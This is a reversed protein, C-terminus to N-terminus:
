IKEWRDRYITKNKLIKNTKKKTKRSKNNNRNM